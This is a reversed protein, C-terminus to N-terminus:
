KPTTAKEPTKKSSAGKTKDEKKKTTFTIDKITPIIEKIKGALHDQMEKQLEFPMEISAKGEKVSASLEIGLSVKLYGKLKETDDDIKKLIKITYEIEKGSLPHNFDVLTRGGSVTKIIGNLNDIEVQLGPQPVINHKKFKNTPILQVLKADKKGFAEEPSLEITYEKNLEKGIIKDDLGAIVQKQGVCIVAPGYVANKQLFGQEKALKEDTTDFIIGEDKTRATYEIEIFDNKQIM